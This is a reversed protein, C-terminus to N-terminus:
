SLQLRRAFADYSYANAIADDFSKLPSDGRPDFLLFRGGKHAIGLRAHALEHIITLAREQKTKSKHFFRPCLSITPKKKTDIVAFADHHMEGSKCDPHNASVCQPPHMSQAAKSLLEFHVRIQQIQGLSRMGPEIKFLDIMALQLPTHLRPDESLKPLGAKLKGVVTKLLSEALDVSDKLATPNPCAITHAM